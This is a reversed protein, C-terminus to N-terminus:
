RHTTTHFSHHFHSFSTFIGFFGCVRRFETPALLQSARGLKLFQFSILILNCCFHVFFLPCLSAKGTESPVPQLWCTHILSIFSPLSIPSLSPPLETRSGLGGWLPHKLTWTEKGVCFYLYSLFVALSTSCVDRGLLGLLPPLPPQAPLQTHQSRQQQGAWCWKPCFPFGGRKSPVRTIACGLRIHLTFWTCKLWQLQLPFGPFHRTQVTPKQNRIQPQM